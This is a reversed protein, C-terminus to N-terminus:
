CDPITADSLENDMNKMREHLVHYSKTSTFSVIKVTKSQLNFNIHKVYCM